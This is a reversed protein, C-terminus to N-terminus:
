WGKNAWICNKIKAGKINSCYSGRLQLRLPAFDILAPGPRIGRCLVTPPSTTAARDQRILGMMDVIMGTQNAAAGVFGRCDPTSSCRGCGDDYARRVPGILYAIFNNACFFCFLIIQNTASLRTQHHHHSSKSSDSSEYDILAPCIRSTAHM